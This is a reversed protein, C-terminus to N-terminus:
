DSQQARLLNILDDLMPRVQAASQGDKIEQEVLVAQRQIVDLGHLGASGAIKHVADQLTGMDDAHGALEDAKTALTQLYRQKQAALLQRAAASLEAM